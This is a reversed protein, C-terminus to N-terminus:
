RGVRRNVLVPSLRRVQAARKCKLISILRTYLTWNASIHKRTKGSNFASSACDISSGFDGDDDADSGTGDFSVVAEREKGGM